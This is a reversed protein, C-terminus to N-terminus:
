NAAASAKRCSITRLCTTAWSHWSKAANPPMPFTTLCCGCRADSGEGDGRPAESQLLRMAPEAARNDRQVSLLSLIVVILLIAAITTLLIKLKKM